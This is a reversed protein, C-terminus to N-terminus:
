YWSIKMVKDNLKQGPETREKIDKGSLALKGFLPEQFDDQLEYPEYGTGVWMRQPHYGVILTRTNFCIPAAADLAEHMAKCMELTKPSWKHTVIDVQELAPFSSALRALADFSEVSLDLIIELGQVCQRVTVHPLEFASDKTDVYVAAISSEYLVEVALGSMEPCALLSWITKSDRTPTERAKVHPQLEGQTLHYQRDQV